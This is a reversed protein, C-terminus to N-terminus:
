FKTLKLTNYLIHQTANKRIEESKKMVIIDHIFHIFDFFLCSLLDLVNLVVSIDNIILLIYKCHLLAFISKFFLYMFLFSKKYCLSYAGAGRLGTIVVLYKIEWLWIMAMNWLCDSFWLCALLFSMAQKHNEEHLFFCPKRLMMMLIIMLLIKYM